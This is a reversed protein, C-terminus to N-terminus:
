GQTRQALDAELLRVVHERRELNSDASELLALGMMAALALDIATQFTGIDVPVTPGVMERALEHMREMFGSLLPAIHDRLVPDTRAAAAVDFVARLREDMTVTSLLRLGAYATRQSPSLSLFRAEWEELHQQILHGMTAALLDDRTPFHRFLGGQSMGARRCVSITTFRAYGDEVLCSLAADLLRQRASARREAQTRRTVVPAAVPQSVSLLTAASGTSM